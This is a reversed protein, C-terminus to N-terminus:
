PTDPTLREYNEDDFAPEDTRLLIVHPGEYHPDTVRAVGAVDGWCDCGQTLVEANGDHKALERLLDNVTM